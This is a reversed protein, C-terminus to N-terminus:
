SMSEAWEAIEAVTATKVWEIHDNMNPWDYTLWARYKELEPNESIKKEIEDM